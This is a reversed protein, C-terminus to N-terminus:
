EDSTDVITSLEENTLRYKPAYAGVGTIIACIKSMNKNM